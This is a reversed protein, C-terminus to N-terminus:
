REEGADLRLARRAIRWGGAERVWQDTYVGQTHPAPTREGPRVRTELLMTRTRAADASLAEFITCCQHHRTQADGWRAMTETIWARIGEQGMARIFPEPRASSTVEFVGSAAFLATYAEVDRADIAHSYRQIAELIALRDDASM